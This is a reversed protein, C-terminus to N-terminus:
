QPKMFKYLLWLLFLDVYFEVCNLVIWVYLNIQQAKSVDLEKCPDDSNDKEIADEM